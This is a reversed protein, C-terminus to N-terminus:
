LQVERPGYEIVHMCFVSAPPDQFKDRPQPNQQKYVISTNNIKASPTPPWLIPWKKHFDYIYSM